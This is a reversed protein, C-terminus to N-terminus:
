FRQWAAVESNDTSTHTLNMISQLQQLKWPHRVDRFNEMFLGFTRFHVLCPIPAVAFFVFCRSWTCQTNGLLEPYGTRQEGNVSWYAFDLDYKQLYTLMHQWWVSQVNTGFEGLWVPAAQDSTDSLLFGWKFNLEREFAEYSGFEVWIVALTSFAFCAVLIFACHLSRCQKVHRMASHNLLSPQRPSPPLHEGHDSVPLVPPSSRLMQLDPPELYAVFALFAARIWLVLSVVALPPAFVGCLISM